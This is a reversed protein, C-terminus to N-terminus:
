DEIVIMSGGGGLSSPGLPSAFADWDLSGLESSTALGGSVALDDVWATYTSGGYCHLYVCVPGDETTTFTLRIQEWTNAAGSAWGGVLAAGASFPVAEAKAVLGVALNTSSRRVWATVTVPQQAKAALITLRLDLPYADTRTTSTVSAKWSKGSGTHTITADTEIKGGDTWIVHYGLIGDHNRSHVRYNYGNALGSTESVEQTVCRVLMGPSNPGVASASFSYANGRTTADYVIASGTFSLGIGYGNAILGGHVEGAGLALGSGSCAAILNFGLRVPTNGISIGTAGHGISWLNEASGQASSVYIGYQGASIAHARQLSLDNTSLSIGSYCRVAGFREFANWSSGAYLGYPLSNVGDVWTEDTQTAMDSRSWGFSVTIPNGATGSKNTQVLYNGSTAWCNPVLANRYSLPM